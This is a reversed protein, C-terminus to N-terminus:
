KKDFQQSWRNPDGEGARLKTGNYFALVTNPPVACRCFLGDEAGPVRSVADKEKRHSWLRDGQSGFKSRGVKTPIGCYLPPRWSTLLQFRGPSPEERPTQYSPCKSAATTWWQGPSRPRKHPSWSATKSPALCPLRSTLISTRLRCSFDFPDRKQEFLFFWREVKLNAKFLVKNGSLRGDEDVRGM